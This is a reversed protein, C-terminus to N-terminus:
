VPAESLQVGAMAPLRLPFEEFIGANMYDPESEGDFLIDAGEPEVPLVIEAAAGSERPAAPEAPVAKRKRAPVADIAYFIEHADIRLGDALIRVTKFRKQQTLTYFSMEVIIGFERDAPGSEKELSGSFSYQCMVEVLSVGERRAQAHCGTVAAELLKLDKVATLMANKSFILETLVTPIRESEKVQALVKGELGRREMLNEARRKAYKMSLRVTTPQSSEATGKEQEDADEEDVRVGESFALLEKALEVAKGMCEKPLSYSDLLFEAMGIEPADLSGWDDVGPVPCRGPIFMPGEGQTLWRSNIGYVDRLEALFEKSPCKPRGSALAYVTSRAVKMSVSMQKADVNLVKM